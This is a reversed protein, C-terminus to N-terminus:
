IYVLGAQNSLNKYYKTYRGNNAHYTEEALAVARYASRTEDDLLGRRYKDYQQVAIAAVGGVFSLLVLVGLAVSLAPSKGALPRGKADKFDGFVLKSLDVLAWISLGGLTL